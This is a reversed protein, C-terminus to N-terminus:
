GERLDLEERTDFEADARSDDIIDRLMSQEEENLGNVWKVIQTKRDESLNSDWYFWSTYTPLIAV